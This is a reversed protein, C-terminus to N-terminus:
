LVVGLHDFIELKVKLLIHDVLDFMDVLVLDDADHARELVVM